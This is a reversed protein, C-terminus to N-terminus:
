TSANNLNDTRLVVTNALKDHIARRKPNTMMTIIELLWWITLISQLFVNIGFFVGNTMDVNFQKLVYLIFAGSLPVLDRLIAQKLNIEKNESKDFIKIGMIMKGFTQGKFAHMVIFYLYPTIFFLFSLFQNLYLNQTSSFLSLISFVALFIADFLAALFRDSFSTYRNEYKLLKIEEERKKISDLIKDQIHLVEYNALNRNELEWTAALIAEKTYYDPSNIYDWLDTDSKRKLSPTFINEKM